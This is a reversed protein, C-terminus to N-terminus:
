AQRSQRLSQALSLGKVATDDYFDVTFSLPLPLADEGMVPIVSGATIPSGLSGSGWDVWLDVEYAAQPDETTPTRVILTHKSGQGDHYEKFDGFGYDRNIRVYLTNYEGGAVPRATCGADTFIQAAPTPAPTAEKFKAVLTRAGSVAFTYSTNESVKTEGEYWGDFEPYESESDPTAVVTVSSGKFFIGDGSVAGISEPFTTLIITALEEHGGNVVQGSFTHTVGYGNNTDLKNYPSSVLGGYVKSM